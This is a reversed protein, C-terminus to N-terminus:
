KNRNKTTASKHINWISHAEPPSCIVTCYQWIMMILLCYWYFETHLVKPWKPRKVPCCECPFWVIGLECRLIKINYCKILTFGLSIHYIWVELAMKEFCKRRVCQGLSRLTGGIPGCKESKLFINNDLYYISQMKQWIFVVSIHHKISINKYYRCTEFVLCLFGWRFYSCSLLIFCSIHVLHSKKGPFTHCKTTYNRYSFM